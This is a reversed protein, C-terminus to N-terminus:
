TEAEGRSPDNGPYTPAAVGQRGTQGCGVTREQAVRVGVPTPDGLRRRPKKQPAGANTRCAKGEPFETWVPHTPICRDGGGGEKKGGGCGKSGRVLTTRRGVWHPDRM